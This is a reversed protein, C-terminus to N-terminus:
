QGACPNATKGAQCPNKVTNGATSCPNAPKAAGYPNKAPSAAAACPNCPNASQFVCPSIVSALGIGFALSLEAVM